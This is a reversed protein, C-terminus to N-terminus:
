AAGTPPKAAQQTARPRAHAAPRPRPDVPAAPASGSNPAAVPPTRSSATERRHLVYYAAISNMHDADRAHDHHATPSVVVGYPSASRHLCPRRDVGPSVYTLDASRSTLLLRRLRLRLGFRRGHLTPRPLAPMAPMAQVAEDVAPKAARVIAAHLGDAVAHTPVIDVDVLGVAALGARYEAFSLAGAICGVCSGREARDEPSLADDAVVDSM